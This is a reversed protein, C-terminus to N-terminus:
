SLLGRLTAALMSEFGGPKRLTLGIRELTTGLNAERNIQGDEPM